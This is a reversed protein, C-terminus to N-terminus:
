LIILQLMLKSSVKSFNETFYMISHFEVSLLRGFNSIM